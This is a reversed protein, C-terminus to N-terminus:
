KMKIIMIMVMIMVNENEMDEIDLINQNVESLFKVLEQTKTKKDDIAM